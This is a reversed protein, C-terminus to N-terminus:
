SFLWTVVGSGVWSELVIMPILGIASAAMFPWFRVSSVGLMLQMPGFTFLLLRMVLVTRFGDRELREDFKILKAPMKSQVWARGMYRAFWYATAGAGLAGLWSLSAGVLPGWVLSASIIFVHAAFGLPQLLGFAAVFGIPGWAGSALLQRKIETASLDEHVGSLLLAIVGALLGVGLTFRVIRHARQYDSVLGCGLRM